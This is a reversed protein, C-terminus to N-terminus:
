IRWMELIDVMKQLLEATVKAKTKGVYILNASAISTDDLVVQTAIFGGTKLANHLNTVTKMFPVDSIGIDEEGNLTVDLDKSSLKLRITNM